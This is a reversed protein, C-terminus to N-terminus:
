RHMTLLIRCAWGSSPLGSADFLQAAEDLNPSLILTDSLQQAGIVSAVRALLAGIRKLEILDELFARGLGM